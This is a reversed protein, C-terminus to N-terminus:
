FQASSKLRHGEIVIFFCVVYVGNELGASPDEAMEMAKHTALNRGQKRNNERDGGRGQSMCVWVHGDWTGSVDAHTCLYSESTHILCM